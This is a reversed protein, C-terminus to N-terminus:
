PHVYASFSNKVVDQLITQIEKENGNKELSKDYTPYSLTIKM